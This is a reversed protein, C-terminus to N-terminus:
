EFFNFTNDRHEDTMEVINQPILYMGCVASMQIHSFRLDLEAVIEDVHLEGYKSNLSSPRIFQGQEKSIDKVLEAFETWEPEKM